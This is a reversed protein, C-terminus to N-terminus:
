ETKQAPDATWVWASGDHAFRNTVAGGGKGSGDYRNSFAAQAANEAQITVTKTQESTVEYSMGSYVETVEVFSGSPIQGEILARQEGAATFTMSVVDSYVLARKAQDTYADIRFVFTVPRAEQGMEYSELTKVIELDGYRETRSHKLTATLDYEWEGGSTSLPLDPDAAIGARTSPLSILQPAFLYTYRESYAATVLAGETGDEAEMYFAYDVSESVDGDRAVLLYLGSDLGSMQQKLKAQQAGDHGDVTFVAKGTKEVTQFSGDPQAKRELTLKAAQGSLGEWTHLEETGMSELKEQTLVYKGSSADLEGLAEYGQVFQYSYTDYLSDPVADAVKYLEVVVNAGAFDTEYDFGYPGGDGYKGPDVTLSCKRKLDVTEGQRVARVPLTRSLFAAPVAALWVVALAAALVQKKKNKM